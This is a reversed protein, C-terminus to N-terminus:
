SMYDGSIAGYCFMGPNVVKFGAASLFGKQAQLDSTVITPSTFLPIYPAYIFAANLYQSSRYGMFYATTTMFPNQIVKRGDLEGILMPGTPEANRAGASPKFTDVQKIVRAVTNGCVIFNGTARLTKAFIKNSGSEFRDKIEHKKFIWPEGAGVNASWTAVMGASDVQTPGTAGLTTDILAGNVAANYMMDLGYQDITFKVENGLIKVIENELNLGHAKLLDISAGISYKARIPFDIAKLTDGTVTINAEQVGKKNGYADVPLDYQYEYNVTMGTSDVTDAFALTLTTTTASGTVGSTNAASLTGAVAGAVKKPNDTAVMIGNNWVEITGLTAPPYAFAQVLATGGDPTLAEGVVGAYAYRRGSETRNHGTLPNLMSDGSTVAGKTDGYKVDMYFVSGTRRDLSQVLAVDNLALSPLLAGIVPLQVGLFEVDSEATAENMKMTHKRLNTENVANEFCQAINHKEYVSLDRGYESKTLDEIHKIMPAWHEALAKQDSVLKQYRNELINQIGKM